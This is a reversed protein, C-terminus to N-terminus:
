AAKRRDGTTVTGASRRLSERYTELSLIQPEAADQPRTSPLYGLRAMTPGAEALFALRNSDSLRVIQNQDANRELYRPLDRLNLWVVSWEDGGM